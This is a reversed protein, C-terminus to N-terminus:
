IEFIYNNFLKARFGKDTSVKTLYTHLLSKNETQKEECNNVNSCVFKSMKEQNRLAMTAFKHFGDLKSCCDTCVMKPLKDELTCQLYSLWYTTDTKKNKKEVSVTFSLYRRIKAQLFVRRAEEGFLNVGNRFELYCIRCKKTLYNM